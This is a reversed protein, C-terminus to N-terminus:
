WNEAMMIHLLRQGEPLSRIHEHHDYEPSQANIHSLVLLTGIIASWMAVEKPEQKTVESMLSKIRQSLSRAINATRETVSVRPAANMADEHRPIRDISEHRMPPSTSHLSSRPSPFRRRIDAISSSSGDRQTTLSRLTPVPAQTTSTQPGDYPVNLDGPLCMDPNGWGCEMANSSILLASCALLLTTMRNRSSSSTRSSQTAIKKSRRPRRIATGVHSATAKGVTADSSPQKTRQADTDEDENLLQNLNFNM